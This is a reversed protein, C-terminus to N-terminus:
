LNHALLPTQTHSERLRDAGTTPSFQIVVDTSKRNKLDVVGVHLVEQDVQQLRLQHAGLDVLGVLDDGDGGGHVAGEGFLVPVVELSEEGVPPGVEM